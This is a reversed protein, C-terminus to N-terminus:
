FDYFIHKASQELLHVPVFQVSVDLPGSVENLLLQVDCVVTDQKANLGDPATKRGFSFRLLFNVLKAVNEFQKTVDVLRFHDVVIPVVHIRGHGRGAADAKLM